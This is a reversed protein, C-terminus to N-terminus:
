DFWKGILQCFYMISLITIENKSFIGYLLISILRLRETKVSIEFKLRSADVM